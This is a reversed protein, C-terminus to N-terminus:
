MNKLLVPFSPQIERPPISKHIVPLYLVQVNKREMARSRMITYHKKKDITPVSDM